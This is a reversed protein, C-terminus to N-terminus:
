PCHTVRDRADNGAGDWYTQWTPWAHPLQPQFRPGDYKGPWNQFKPGQPRQEWDTSYWHKEERREFCWRGESKVYTDFYCIAMEVWHDKDEHGARCYVTGKAHESDILDITQGCVLHVCRYFGTLVNKSAYYAKLADRGRGWRGCDVDASFLQVLADLDRSDVALAYRAPLQAIALQAEVRELRQLLDSSDDAM